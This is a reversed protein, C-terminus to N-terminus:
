RSVKPEIFRAARSAIRRALNRGNAVPGSRYIREDAQEAAANKEAPQEPQAIALEGRFARHPEGGFRTKFLTLGKKNPIARM